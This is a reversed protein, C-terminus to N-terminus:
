LSEEDSDGGVPKKEKNQTIKALMAEISKNVSTTINLEMSSIKEEIQSVRSNMTTYSQESVSIGSAPSDVMAVGITRSKWRRSAITGNGMTSISDDDEGTIIRDLHTAALETAAKPLSREENEEINGEEDRKFEVVFNYDGDVEDLEELDKSLPNRIVKENDDWTWDAKLAIADPDFFDLVEDGYQFKLYPILGDAIMRATNANSPIFRFIIKDGRWAKDVGHFLNIKREDMTKIGMIIERLSTKLVSHQVDINMIDDSADDQLAASFHTQKARLNSVKKINNINGKVDKYEAVLRMRIGLPFRTSKSGYLIKLEKKVKKEDVKATELHVAKLRKKSEITPDWKDTLIPKYRGAVTAGCFASIEDTLADVDLGSYSFLLWGCRVTTESQIDKVFVDTKEKKLWWSIDGKIEIIPKLHSIKVDTYIKGGKENPNGRTFYKKFMFLATPIDKFSKIPQESMDSDYWPLLTVKNDSEEMKSMWKSAASFLKKDAENESPPVFFNVSIRTIYSSMRRPTTDTGESEYGENENTQSENNRKFVKQLSLKRLTIASTNLGTTKLNGKGVPENVISLATPVKGAQKKSEEGISENSEKDKSASDENNVPGEREKKKPEPVIKKVKAETGKNQEEAKKKSKEASDENFLMKNSSESASSDNLGKKAKNKQSEENTITERSIASRKKPGTRGFGRGQGRGKTM